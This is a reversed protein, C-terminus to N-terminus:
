CDGILQVVREACVSVLQALSIDRHNIHTRPKAQKEGGEKRRKGKRRKEEREKGKEKRKRERKKQEEMM